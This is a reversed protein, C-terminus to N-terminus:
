KESGVIRVFVWLRVALVRDGDGWVCLSFGIEVEGSACHSSGSRWRGLDLSFGIEMEPLSSMSSCDPDSSRDILLSLLKQTKNIGANLSPRIM